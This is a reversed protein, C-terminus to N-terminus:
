RRFINNLIPKREEDNLRIGEKKTINEIVKLVSQHTYTMFMSASDLQYFTKTFLKRHLWVGVLPIKYILIQFPSDKFVLHWSIFFGRGFPAACVYYEYDKWTIRLYIRKVFGTSIESFKKRSTQVNKIGRENLEESVQKYFDETSYSFNDFLTNWKSHYDPTRKKFIWILIILVVMSTIIPSHEIVDLLEYYWPKGYRYNQILFHISNM